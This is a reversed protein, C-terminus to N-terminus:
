KPALDTRAYLVLNVGPRLPYVTGVRTYTAGLVRQLQPLQDERGVVALTRRPDYYNELVGSYGANQNDRTYWPMPWYEPSPTSFGPAKTGARDGVREIERVLDHFERRTQSYVYPYKDDDYDRFNIVYTHYLGVCAAALALSAAM